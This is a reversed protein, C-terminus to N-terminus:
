AESRAEVGVDRALQQASSGGLERTSRPALAILLLAIGIVSGVGLVARPGLAGALPGALLYGIPLLALSGM